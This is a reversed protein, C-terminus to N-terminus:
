KFSSCLKLYLDHKRELYVKATESYHYMKQWANYVNIRGNFHLRYVNTPIGHEVQRFPKTNLELQEAIWILVEETSNAYSQWRRNKESYSIGGDGDFFGRIWDFRLKSDNLFTPPQLILSKREVIGHQILDKAMEKCGFSFAAYKHIEGNKIPKSFERIKVSDAKVFAKFKEVHALDRYQLNVIIYNGHVCGDAALFGM